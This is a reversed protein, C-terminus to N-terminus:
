HLKGQRKKNRLDEIAQGISLWVGAGQLDDKEMLSLMMHHAYSNAKDGHKKLLMQATIYVDKQSVM